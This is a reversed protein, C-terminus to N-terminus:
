NGLSSVEVGKSDISTKLLEVEKKLKDISSQQEKVAEILVAVINQYAVSKYGEDDTKVLEPLVKEVEQAILGIQRGDSFNKEPFENQRFEYSVGNLQQVKDVANHMPEIDTKFREDSAQTWTGTYTGSGIVKVIGGGIHPKLIINGKGNFTQTSDVVLIIDGGGLGNCSLDSVPGTQLTIDNLGDVIGGTSLIISSESDFLGGGTKLAIVNSGQNTSGTEISISNDGGGLGQNTSGTKLTINNGGGMDSYGTSIDIAGGYGWGYGTNISIKGGSFNFGSGAKINIDGGQEGNGSTLNIGGGTEGGQGGKLNVSGGSCLNNNIGEAILNIARGCDNTTIGGQVDLIGNIVVDGEGTIRFFVTDGTTSVVSFGDTSANGGLTATIDQSYINTISFLSITFVFLLFSKM